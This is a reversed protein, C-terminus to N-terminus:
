LPWIGIGTAVRDLAHSKPRESASITPEFGLPPMSTQRKHINHTTLYLDRRRASWGDLPTRGFIHHRLTITFGQCHPPGPGSHAAAGHFFLYHGSEWAMKPVSVFYNRFAIYNARVTSFQLMSFSIISLLSLSTSAARTLTLPICTHWLAAV